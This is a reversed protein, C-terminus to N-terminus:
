DACIPRVRDERRAFIVFIGAGFALGILLASKSFQRESGSMITSARCSDTWLVEGSSSSVLLTEFYLLHDGDSIENRHIRGTLIADAEVKSRKSKEPEIREAKIRDILKEASMKEKMFLGSDIVKVRDANNLEQVLAFQLAKHYDHELPAVAVSEVGPIVPVQAVIERAALAVLHDGSSTKIIHPLLYIPALVCVLILLSVFALRM